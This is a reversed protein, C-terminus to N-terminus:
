AHWRDALRLRANGLLINYTFGFSANSPSNTAKQDQKVRTAQILCLRVPDDM